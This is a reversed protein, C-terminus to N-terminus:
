EHSHWAEKNADDYYHLIRLRYFVALTDWFMKFITSWKITSTGKDFKVEIPAEYVRDFGLYKAVALMEIDMAYRKVLLRPLIAEVVKRKFIKIGSQTDTLPLGFLIKVGLHYGISLIRRLFPYNVHSVPHRKSGVIIDADYWDMHAMLMMMGKPSIDMGADLFSIYNGLAQEMGYRVAYGKGKNVEYGVVRLHSSKVRKAERETNDIKGDVVCIIEYSFGNSLGEKLTDDIIKLDKRITREKKYAPVIVSLLNVHVGAQLSRKYAPVIVSLLNHKNKM